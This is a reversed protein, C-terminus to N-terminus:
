REGRGTEREKRYEERSRRARWEKGVRREESRAPRRARRGQGAGGERGSAQRPPGGGGARRGTSSADDGGPAARRHQHFEHLRRSIPLACMQVGTVTRDRIGDEAQFFFFSLFFLSISIYNRAVDGKIEHRIVKTRAKFFGFAKCLSKM